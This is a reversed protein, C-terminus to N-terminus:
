GAYTRQRPKDANISTAEAQIRIAIYTRDNAPEREFCPLCARSENTTNTRARTTPVNRRANTAIVPEQCVNKIILLRQRFPLMQHQSCIIISSPLNSIFDPM